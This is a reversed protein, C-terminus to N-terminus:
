FKGEFTVTGGGLAPTGFMRMAQLGQAPRHRDRYDLYFLPISAVLGLTGLALMTGGGGVTNYVEKCQHVPDVADCTPRGDIVVLPIGVALGVVGLALSGFALPRWPV